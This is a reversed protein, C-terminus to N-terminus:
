SKVLRLRPREPKSRSASTGSGDVGTMILGFLLDDLESRFLGMSRAVDDVSGGTQRISQAVKRLLLSTERPRNSDKEELRYGDASLQRCISHYHWDTILGLRFLRRTYAMASVGWAKKAQHIARPSAHRPASAIMAAAPMLLASAFLNAESEAERGQPSGHQHLALHGIEHALDWRCGEASKLTNMLILPRGSDWIAFAGIERGLGSLSFVRVGRSEALHMVNSIPHEGLGWGRRLEQSAEEVASRAHPSARLDREWGDVSSGEFGFDQLDLDPVDPEPLSFNRDLWRSFEIAIDGVATAAHRQGATMKSLSRFSAGDAAVGPPDDLSFFGVPFGLVSALRGLTSTPESEGAEYATVMRPTVGVGAALAKKTMKRRQRALTLRSPNFM